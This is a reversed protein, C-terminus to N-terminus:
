LDGKKLSDIRHLQSSYQYKHFTVEEKCSKKLVKETLTQCNRLFFNYKKRNIKTTILDVIDGVTGKGEIWETEQIFGDTREEDELRGTVDSLNRSLQICIRQPWREFSYWCNETKVVVFFHASISKPDGNRFAAVYEVKEGKLHFLGSLRITKREFFLTHIVERTDEGGYLLGDYFNFYEM